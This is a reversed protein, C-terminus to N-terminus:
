LLWLAEAVTGGAALGAAGWPVVRCCEGGSSATSQRWAQTLPPAGCTAELTSSRWHPSNVWWQPRAGRLAM